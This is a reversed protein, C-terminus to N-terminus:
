EEEEEYAEMPPCTCFLNKDGYIDDIRGTSPWMKDDPKLYPLPFAAQKRTYPQQWNDASVSELTHPAMKLMNIEKDVKGDEIDKIEKRISILADCFRDLEEKDESETPEIMLTNTVPWSMTPAHFGYDQLRKAIDVAEVNSTAKFGRVDIIFEHAVFGNTGTYLINYHGELRKAMYNANLIAIESAERLGKAGMLKIYTWSIPLICASGWPAASVVGLPRADSVLSGPPPVVPHTPLFPVLHKKVGIPGMGPGGGGHPICFTKHLNLHSVDSGYDGPRCLGVQANMNAGDVYVQGGLEHIMDCTERIGEEFVGNTSPYTLMIASLNAAYKHALKQLDLLDVSGSKDVKVPVVKMGCMQASAPNTGHASTPILCVSRQNEGISKHYARIAALGTFEGQAGSNPQFCISDYGTIECLDRELEKFLEQYGRAQDIPVFPHINAFERWSIPEMEATANLKMTCSGLPIMSHVLSVDKNELKKMYRVINTESRYKHFIPHTLFDTKRRLPSESLHGELKGGLEAALEAATQECGFVYLLDDLDHEVVTEDLAVGIKCGNYIRLNIKKEGSRRYIDHVGSTMHVMITDFFDSHVLYHGAKHIGHALLLAANHVRNALHKIGEPGHYVAFMASMNALLAQATCINSTAKARRIHQERTQLALRYVKKGHADRTVGVVRGPMLRKLDNRVAFFAAHPGGYNLPVGFRQSSGLAVDCGLEGPSKLLALALLDTSCAVLSGHTHADEIVHSFDFVRGETNPYQILVGSFDRCSFDMREINEVFIEVGILQARTRVVELAQPNIKEDVYFKRRNNHRFCLSVAEAAATAEDLLSANAIDLGTMDVVMTQYNILSELRGQALEPQYPTYPTSWGPNELMNRVITRPVSCNYYGMGIFSRWDCRNQKAILNLRDLIENECVTDELDLDKGLRIQKPITQNIMDETDKVGIAKLMQEQQEKSPGNHRIAFNEHKPFISHLTSICRSCLINRGISSRILKQYGLLIKGHKLGHM